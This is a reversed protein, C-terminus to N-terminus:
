IFTFFKHKQKKRSVSNEATLNVRAIEEGDKTFIVTGLIDGKAIPASFYRCMKVEKKIESDTKPLILKVTDQNSIRVTDTVGDIVPIDYSFDGTKAPFRAEFLSYGLDLMKTHDRWDDPANITVSILTLGDREAASVLCRGSKKTFGTKVGIAGDYMKLMKNHNVLTRKTFNSTVEKKYTSTIEKFSENSLAEAAILALDSATTYHNKDDLGHPNTFSTNELNLAKAKENMLRAFDEISGAIKYALAAAADNASQLLVSYILDIASMSEGAKLYISSGEIGIAREDVEINENPDLMELALLATMIKTTSAMGLRASSNKTYVFQKTEPEYLAASKASLNMEDESSITFTFLTFIFALLVLLSLIKKYNDYMVKGGRNNETVFFFNNM